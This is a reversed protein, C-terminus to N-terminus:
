CKLTAHDEQGHCISRWTYCSSSHMASFCNQRAKLLTSLEAKKISNHSKQQSISAKKIEHRKRFKAKDAEKMTIRDDIKSLRNTVDTSSTSGSLPTHIGTLSRWSHLSRKQGNWLRHNSETSHRQLHFDPFSEVITLSCISRREKGSTIAIDRNRITIIINDNIIIIHCDIIPEDDQVKQVM